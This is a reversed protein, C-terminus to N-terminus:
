INHRAGSVGTRSFRVARSVNSRSGVAVMIPLGFVSLRTYLYVSLVFLVLVHFAWKVNARPCLIGNSLIKVPIKTTCTLVTTTDDNRTLSLKYFTQRNSCSSNEDGYTYTYLATTRLRKQVVSRECWKILNRAVCGYFLVINTYIKLFKYYMLCRM